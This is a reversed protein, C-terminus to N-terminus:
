EIEDLSRPWNKKLLRSLARDALIQAPRVAAACYNTENTPTSLASYRRVAYPCPQGNGATCQMGERFATVKEPFGV